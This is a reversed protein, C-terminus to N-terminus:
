RNAEQLDFDSENSSVIGVLGAIRELARIRANRIKWLSCGLVLECEQESYRELVSMVFIFREFDELALVSDTEFHGDGPNSLKGNGPVVTAPDAHDPHLQLARIANHIITRKAWSRAWERPVHHAQICDELGAVFCQEAKEHNGTMVFSLQYLSDLDETFVRCFDESTAYQNAKDVGVDNKQPCCM